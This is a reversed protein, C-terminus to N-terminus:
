EGERVQALQWNAIQELLSEAVKASVTIEGGRKVTVDLTPIAIEDVSGIYQVRVTEPM